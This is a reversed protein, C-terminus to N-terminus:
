RLVRRGCRRWAPLRAASPGPLALSCGRDWRLGWCGAVADWHWAWLARLWSGGPGKRLGAPPLRRHCGAPDLLGPLHHGLHGRQVGGGQWCLARPRGGAEAAQKRRPFTLSLMPIATHHGCGKETCEGSCAIALEEPNKSPEAAMRTANCQALLEETGVCRLEQLEIPGSGNAPAAHIKEPVGCGLQRCVVTATGNDWLGVPVRAWVGPRVAVELRGDCRSEGGHLRLPEAVGAVAQSHRPSPCHEGGAPPGWPGWVWRLLQRSCHARPPLRAAGAGGRPVPRPAAREWQM